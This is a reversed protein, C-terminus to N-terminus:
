IRPAVLCSVVVHPSDGTNAGTTTGLATFVLRDGATITRSKITDTAMNAIILNGIGSDLATATADLAFGSVFAGGDALTGINIKTGGSLVGSVTIVVSVSVLKANFPVMVTTQPGEVGVASSTLEPTTILFPFEDASYQEARDTSTGDYGPLVTMAGDLLHRSAKSGHLVSGQETM